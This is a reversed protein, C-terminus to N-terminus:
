KERSLLEEALNLLVQKKESSVNITALADIAKKQYELMKDKTHKEIDLSKYITKVEKIKHENDFTNESNFLESLREKTAASALEFAKILLYTKKNTVIDNGTKKGFTKEDAFVDLLDDKLQFAMGIYEGFKYINTKDQESAEGIIAGAKLSAALLVATKLRIMELYESESVNKQTEFDLDFQQGECVEIAVQTLVQVVDPLHKRSVKGIYEYAKAFVTDGSLIATNSDWKKYVTPQGRRIPAKDMIDDHILTFNHFLELGIAAKIAEDMDGGFMDSAALCLIPRLRKGGLKVTYEIPEYLRGPNGLFAENNLISDFYDLLSKYDRM